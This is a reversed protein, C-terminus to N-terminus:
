GAKRQKLLEEERLRLTEFFAEGDVMQVKGSKIEDYRSDLEDRVQALEDFYSSMAEEVIEEATRGTETAWQEVKAKLEPNLHVDM